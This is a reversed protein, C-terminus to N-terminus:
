STFSILSRGEREITVREPTVEIRWYGAGELQYVLYLADEERVMEKLHIANKFSYTELSYDWEGQEDPNYGSPPAYVREVDTEDVLLRLIAEPVDAVWLLSARAQEMTAEETEWVSLDQTVPCWVVPLEDVNMNEHDINLPM